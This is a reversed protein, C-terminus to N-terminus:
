AQGDIRNQTTLSLFVDELHPEVTSIDHIRIGETQFADLVRDASIESRSYSIEIVGDERLLTKGIKAVSDPVATVPAAPTVVLTKYILKGCCSKRETM